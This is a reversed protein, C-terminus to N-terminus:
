EDSVGKQRAIWRSVTITGHGADDQDQEVIHSKPFWEDTGTDALRVLLAKDTSRIFKEVALEVPEEEEKVSGGSNQARYARDRFSLCRM